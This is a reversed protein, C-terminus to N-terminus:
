YIVWFSYPHKTFFLAHDILVHSSLLSWYCIMIMSLTSITSSIFPIYISHSLGLVDNQIKPQNQLFTTILILHTVIVILSTIKHLCVSLLPRVVASSERIFISM